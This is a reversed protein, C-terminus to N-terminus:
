TFRLSRGHKQKFSQQLSLILLININIHFQIYIKGTFTYLEEQMEYMCSNFDTCKSNPFALSLAISLVINVPVNNTYYMDDRKERSATSGNAITAQATTFPCCLLSVTNFPFSHSPSHSQIHISVCLQVVVDM